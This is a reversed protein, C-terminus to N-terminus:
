GLFSTVVVEANRAGPKNAYVLYSRAAKGVSDVEPRERYERISEHNSLTCDTDMDGNFSALETEGTVQDKCLHVNNVNTFKPNRNRSEEVPELRKLNLRTQATIGGKTVPGIPNAEVM